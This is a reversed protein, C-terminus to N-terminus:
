GQLPTLERMVTEAIKKEMEQLRRVTTNPIAGKGLTARERVLDNVAATLKRASQVIEDSRVVIMVRALAEDIWADHEARQGSIIAGKSTETEPIIEFAVDTYMVYRRFTRGAALLAVCADQREKFLTEKSQLQRSHAQTRFSILGGVLVGVIASVPGLITPLVEVRM